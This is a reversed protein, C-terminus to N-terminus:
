PRASTASTSPAGWSRPPRSAARPLRADMFYIVANARRAADTVRAFGGEQQDHIFGETVLLVTKRGRSTTLAQLVRELAKTTIRQRNITDKYVQAAKHRLLPHGEGLSSALNDVGADGPTWYEQIVGNEAWRRMVEAGIRQDRRVYIAQAEYDWIHDPGTPAPRLGKLGELAALLDARVGPMRGSWWAGGGTATLQVRDGDAFGTRIFDAVARRAQEAQTHSLHVNDFVIM